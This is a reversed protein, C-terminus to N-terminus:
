RKTSKIADVIAFLAFGAAAVWLILDPRRFAVAALALWFAASPLAVLIFGSGAPARRTEPMPRLPMPGRPKDVLIRAFQKSRTRNM